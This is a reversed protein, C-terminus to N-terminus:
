REGRDIWKEVAPPVFGELRDVLTSADQDVLLIERHADRLFREAVMHELFAALGDYFGDVNLLGCPKKHFGLQSWTFVEFLEELTGIGGPMAVFAGSLDAMLAKREHMSGVVRLEVGRHGLEKAMLAEPIVGIVRGGRELVRDAIVGMLGVDGGGYVLELGRSVLVDALERAADAYAARRGPSSGTFM